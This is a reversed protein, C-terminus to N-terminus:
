ARFYWDEFSHGEPDGPWISYGAGLLLERMRAKPNPGLRYEDHEVTALTFTIGAALIHELAPIQADDVDLSLYDYHGTITRFDFNTADAEIVRSSRGKRCAACLDPNVDMLIGRWGLQELSYTNSLNTADNCGVDLFSGSTIGRGVVLQQHVWLDQSIQSYSKFEM